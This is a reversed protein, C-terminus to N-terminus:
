PNYCCPHRHFFREVSDCGSTPSEGNVEFTWGSMEGQSGNEVGSIQTVFKGYTSDEASFEVNSAELCDYVTSGEPVEVVESSEDGPLEVEMTVQIESSQENQVPEEVPACGVMGFSLALATFAAVFIVKLKM